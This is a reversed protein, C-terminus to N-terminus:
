ALPTGPVAVTVRVSLTVISFFENITFKPVFDTLSSNLVAIRALCHFQTLSFEEVQLREFFVPDRTIVLSFPSMTEGALLAIFM